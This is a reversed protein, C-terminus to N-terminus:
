CPGDAHVDDRWLVVDCHCRYYDYAPVGDGHTASSDATSSRRRSLPYRRSSPLLVIRGYRPSSLPAM